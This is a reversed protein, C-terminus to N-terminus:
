AVSFVVASFAPDCEMVATYEPLAYQRLLVDLAAVTVTPVAGVVMPSVADVVDIM